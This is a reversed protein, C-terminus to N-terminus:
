FTFSVEAFYVTGPDEYMYFTRYDEDFINDISLSLDIQRLPGRRVPFHKVAKVDVTFSEEMLLKEGQANYKRNDDSTYQEDLYRAYVAISFNDKRSYTVGLNAKHKPSFPLDNGERLPNAPNEDIVARNWTYNGDVRLNESLYLAVALEAGYSETRGINRNIWVNNSDFWSIIKDDTYNYFGALSAQITNGFWKELGLEWSYTTEPSLDPNPERPNGGSTRDDYLQVPSPPMFGVGYGAWISTDDSPNYRIGIKPSWKDDTRDDPNPDGHNSFLNDYNKWHDYRLGATVSLEDLPMWHDQIYGALTRVKYRNERQLAGSNWDHYDQETNTRNYFFGATLTHGRGADATLRLEAPIEYYDTYRKKGADYNSKGKDYLHLLDDYRFGLYARFSIAEGINQDLSLAAFNRDWDGGVHPRGRNYKDHFYNYFLSLKADDTLAYGTNLSVAAKDYSCEGIMAVSPNVGNKVVNSGDSDELSAALSYGLRDFGGETSGWLRRTDFRGYGFGAATETEKGGKKLIINIVGGAANAGYLASAPGRLIEVREINEPLVAHTIEWNTPIGNVLTVVADSGLGRINPYSPFPASARRLTIGPVSRLADGIDGNPLNRLEIEESDIVTVSAPIDKRATEYKTATVVMEELRAVSKEEAAGPVSIFLCLIGAMFMKGLLKM